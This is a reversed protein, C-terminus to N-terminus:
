IDNRKITSSLYVGYLMLAGLIIFIFNFSPIFSFVIFAILPALVYSVPATNRYIAIFEDNEKTIHKFFYVDNMIEIIAAGIRTTFLAVAWIWVENKKIFFLSLTAISAILFGLILMKKEGIKDSYKGLPFQILVFPLLMITFITAIEKWNFGLHAYLYIPTYIVMWVYFFQLLFNIKYARALNKNTFFNKFSEWALVKDYKPDVLNKLSWFAALFFIAMIAFAIFYSAPFSFYLLIKGSIVQAIVWALNIITLYLGRVKGMSSNKSFIQVLEDLAFIILYNLTFYFIFVPIIIVSSKFTALLLLSFASLGSSWLLFRYEGMKRLIEPIFFLVFLSTTSGLIYILSVNKEGFFISLFSSNVYTVFALHLSLLFGLFFINKLKQNEKFM